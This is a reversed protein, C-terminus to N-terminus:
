MTQFPFCLMLGGSGSGEVEPMKFALCSGMLSSADESKAEGGGNGVPDDSESSGGGWKGLVSVVLLGGWAANLKPNAFIKLSKL